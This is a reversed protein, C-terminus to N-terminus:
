QKVVRIIQSTSGNMIQIIYVGKAYEAGFKIDTVNSLTEILKGDISSIYVIASEGLVLNFQDSSPNPMIKIADTSKLDVIGTTPCTGEPVGCGCLGPSLKTADTPCTDGSKSVYGIPQTCGVQSASADGVGDGDLDQYWTVSTSVTVVNAISTASCGSSSVVVTYSGAVTASYTSATAGSIVSADKNWVYTLGNGTNASLLVSAGTCFTTSTTTSITATPLATLTVVKAASTASCGNSTVIVTYSGAETASYTSTTAGSIVSADKNWVYTLGNGTNASLLVNAGTCFTTATTTSITATPLPNVTIVIPASTIPSSSTCSANSTMVVSYSDGNFANTTAYTAATAFAIASGNKKWQYTPVTGGNTSAATFTLSTGSCITASPSVSMNVVPSLSTNVLMTIVNSTANPISVCGSNSVMDVSIQDGNSLLTTTYNVNTAGTIAVANKKWQYTPSTGGNGSNASFTVSTGACIAGVPSATISVVPTVVTAVTIVVANSTAPNGITCTANSTMTVTYSDGNTASTTTYTASTVGPIPVANKIWQYIPSSGGNAPTATFTVSTGACIITSPTAISVSVPVNPNVTMVIANSAATTPSACTANSTMTVTYSDGNTASTTTYTASTVGPIPVANKIWQYMPSTGGNTPTATFMVSSGACITGTPSVAISVAPVVIPNVTTVIANSTATAPSACTANSTMAVTYSDGNTATTTTYTASTAGTIVVANKKWQYTPSTGGNGPNASFTVSTGACIAGAPSATISVAPTVVSTVTIVIANSTAPYGTSCLANSTMTVTYSDGNSATTTTYTASTASVIASGNKKWQYSPTSGGNTPIATLMVSSGACIKTSPTAINVSVPVNPNVTMVIANSAATTPSACTANSTMTVTYSDGNIASTTTYTASTVGPIPVANKIWQYTPSTGGNGPNASYTVSTGACIITSPTSISVSGPVNPNVTVVKATSTASCGNSSVVVTYSGAATASYTSSTAGSIVTGDKNWVYSLGTGTNASLLVNGGACFTTATTTGITATPLANVTVAIMARPGECGNLTQSVYYNTTGVNTTLPIPASSLATSTTNDAYWKLTTGTATLATAIAGKCYLVPSTVTPAITACPASCSPFVLANNNTSFTQAAAGFDALDGVETTLSTATTINATWPMHGQWGGALLAKYAATMTMAPTPIPDRSPMEAVVCPKEDMGFQTPTKEFPSSYYQEMWGYFHPSYFDLYANANSSTQAMLNADSWKNGDPNTGGGPLKGGNWKVCASGLSVLVKTGDTRAVSSQHLGAACLGVFKQLVSYDIGWNSNDGKGNGNESIWEIENCLDISWLYPNTKYRNVFPVLYNTIYTQIKVPDNMMARWNNANPNGTKTHDFSMMTAQVYIGNAKASAFLDDCNNWFAATPASVTGDSAISPQGGGDCSFWIRTANIGKNKLALMDGAWKTSSYNGGFDNWSEWPTNAGNFYIPCSANGNVVFKKNLIGITQTFGKAFIGLFVILFLLRKKM